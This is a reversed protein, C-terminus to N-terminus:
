AWTEDDAGWNFDADVTVSAAFGKEVSIDLMEVSPATYAGKLLSKM